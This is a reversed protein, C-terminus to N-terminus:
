ASPLPCISWSQLQNQGGPKIMQHFTKRLLFSLEFRKAQRHFGIEKRIFINNYGIFRNPMLQLDTCATCIDENPRSMNKSLHSEQQNNEVPSL